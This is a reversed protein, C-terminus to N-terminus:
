NQSDTTWGRTWDESAVNSLAGIFSVVEFFGDNPPTAVPITGDVCPSSDTPRFDRGKPKYPKRLQPNGQFIAKSRAAWQATTIPPRPTEDADQSFDGGANQYFVGNGMTLAGSVAQQFTAAHDIEVGVEKFGMVIFNRLTGATGERLLMGIDSEGGQKNDPDGILTFNYIAPNARPQLNNNEANSDAEIGQDADDGRQQAIWFQGRGRWGETWDFNDDGTGTCLVHKADVTGGFFEVCDDLNFHVQVYDVETNRGVGQFAIGNLENDPSFETGAYEVRLYNLVGSNDNPQGGGYVGTDGEGFAEGGPVNIPARGNIILGGWLGRSRPPSQDSTMVIPADARGNAIIQAGRTIILTGNTASEGYITTGAQITLTAPAQVFVAGALVYDNTNALTTDTLIDGQLVVIPKGQGFVTEEQWQISILALLLLFAAKKLYQM